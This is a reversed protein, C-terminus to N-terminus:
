HRSALSPPARNESVQKWSYAIGMTMWFLCSYQPGWFSPEQAVNILAIVFTTLLAGAMPHERETCNKWLWWLKAAFGALIGLLTFLGVIGTEM